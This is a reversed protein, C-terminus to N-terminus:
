VKGIRKNLRLVIKRVVDVPIVTLSCGLVLLLENVTLGATRFLDGGYFVLIMQVAAV